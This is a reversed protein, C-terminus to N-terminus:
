LGKCEGAILELELYLERRLWRFNSNDDHLKGQDWALYLKHHLIARM